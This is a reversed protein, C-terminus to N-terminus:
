CGFHMTVNRLRSNGLELSIEARAGADVSRQEGKPLIRAPGGVSPCQWGTMVESRSQAYQHRLGHVGNIPPELGGFGIAGSPAIPHLNM